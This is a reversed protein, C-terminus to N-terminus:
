SSTMRDPADALLDLSSPGGSDKEEEDPPSAHAVPPAGSASSGDKGGGASAAAAPHRPSGPASFFRRQWDPALQAPILTPDVM